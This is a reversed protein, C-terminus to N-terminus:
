GPSEVWSKLYEVWTDKTVMILAPLNPFGKAVLLKYLLKNRLIITSKNMKPEAVDAEGSM